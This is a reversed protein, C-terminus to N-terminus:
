RGVRQVEPRLAPVPHLRVHGDSAAAAPGFDQRRGRHAESGGQRGEAGRHVGRAEEELRGEQWSGPFCYLAQTLCLNNVCPLPCAQYDLPRPNLEQRM